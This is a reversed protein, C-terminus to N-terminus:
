GCLQRVRSEDALQKTCAKIRRRATEFHDRDIEVGIFRHGELLAAVATSGSGMYPDIITSGPKLKLKQICWRMLAVPKQTPHLTKGSESQRVCGMWVHHFLYVAKSPKAWAVECDGLFKGLNGSPKKCWVLWGGGPLRNSYFNGGWLIVKPFGIWPTPDFPRDDGKVAAFTNNKFWKAGSSFRTYDTDLNIGYPPDAVVADISSVDLSALVDLCDGRYLTADGIRVPRPM